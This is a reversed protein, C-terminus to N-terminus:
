MLLFAGRLKSVETERSSSGVMLTNDIYQLAWMFVGYPSIDWLLQGTQMDWMKLTSDYSCSIVKTDDFQLSTVLDTHAKLQM